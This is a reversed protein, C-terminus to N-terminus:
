KGALRCEHNERAKQEFERYGGLRQVLEDWDIGAADFEPGDVCAFKTQGHVSVRCGGCMGTGDIMIPNLSAMTKIGKAVTLSTTAKMMMAPGIVVALDFQEGSDFLDTAINSVFGKKGISGDDSAIFLRNSQQNMEEELILLEKTRAGIITTVDNGAEKLACVIPYLPAIGVGGGICLTRGFNEIHTPKGLPGVLDSVRSGKDLAALSLTGHGVAQFIIEIWGEESDANAITLPIREGQEDARIIIFQGAKRKRAIRPAELRFRFVQESLQEKKLIRSM